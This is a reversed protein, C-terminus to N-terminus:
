WLYSGSLREVVDVSTLLQHQVHRTFLILSFGTKFYLGTILIIYKHEESIWWFLKVFFTHLVDVGLTQFLGIKESFMIYFCEGRYYIAEVRECLCKWVEYCKRCSTSHSGWAAASSQSRSRQKGRSCVTFIFIFLVDTCGHWRRWETHM